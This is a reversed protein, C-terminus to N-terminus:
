RAARSRCEPTPVLARALMARVIKRVRGRKTKTKTKKASKRTKRKKKTGLRFPRSPNLRSV